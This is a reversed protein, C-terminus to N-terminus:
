CLPKSLPTCAVVFLKCRSLESFDRVNDDGKLVWAEEPCFKM